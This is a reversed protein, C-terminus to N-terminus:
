HVILRKNIFSGTESEFKLIYLGPDLDELDNSLEKGVNNVIGKLLLEDSKRVTVKQGKVLPNPYINVFLDDPKFNVQIIKSFEFTGDLDIQKLRYYNLGLLPNSDTFQYTKQINNSEINQVRGISEFTTLNRSKQIEFLNHNTESATISQLLVGSQFDTGKFDVLDVPLAPNTVNFLCPPLGNVPVTIASNSTIWNGSGNIFSLFYSQNGSPVAVGDCGFVGNDNSSTLAVATTGDTLGSPLATTSADVADADWTSTANFDVASIPIHNGTGNQVFYAIIQDGSASLDFGADIESISGVSVTNMTANVIVNTGASLGSGPVTWRLVGEGNRFGGAALWGSDTFNLEYNGPLDVLLVFSFQDFGDTQYSTFAIEGVSFAKFTSIFSLFLLISKKM